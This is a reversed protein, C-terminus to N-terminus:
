LHQTLGTALASCLLVEVGGAAAAIELLAAVACIQDPRSPSLKVAMVPRVIKWAQPSTIRKVRINMANQERIQYQGHSHHGEFTIDCKAKGQLTLNGRQLSLDAM